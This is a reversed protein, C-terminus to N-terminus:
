VLMRIICFLCALSFCGILAFKCVLPLADFVSRLASFVEDIEFPVSLNQFLNEFFEVALVGM